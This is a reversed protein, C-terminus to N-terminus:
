TVWLDWHFCFYLNPTDHRLMSRTSDANTGGSCSIHHMATECWPRMPIFLAVWQDWWICFCLYPRIHGLANKISVM